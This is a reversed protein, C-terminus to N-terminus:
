IYFFSTFFSENEQKIARGPNQMEQKFVYIFKYLNFKGRKKYKLKRQNKGAFSRNTSPCIHENEKQM